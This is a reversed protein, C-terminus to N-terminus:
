LFIKIIFQNIILNYSINDNFNKCLEEVVKM